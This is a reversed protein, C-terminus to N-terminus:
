QNYDEIAAKIYLDDSYDPTVLNDGTILVDPTFPKGHICYKGGEVSNDFIYYKGVIISLLYLDLDVVEGNEDVGKDRIIGKEGETYTTFGNQAVGKGVTTKGILLKSRGHAKLIGILAESASATGGDCLIYVPTDIKEAVAISTVYASRDEKAYHIEVLPEGVSVDSGLFTSAIYRLVEASGGGNGRLDLILAHNGDANYSHVASKFENLVNTSNEFTRLYIYGFQASVGPLDNIYICYPFSFDVKTYNVEYREGNRILTFKVPTDSPLAAIIASYASTALGSLRQDNVAYLEDGRMATYGNSENLFPSGPLIFDILHENYATNRLILGFGKGDSGAGLVDSSSYIYNYDGLSSVIGYAAYLDAEDLDMDDYYNNAIFNLVQNTLDFRDDLLQVKEETASKCSFASISLIIIILAILILKGWKKM